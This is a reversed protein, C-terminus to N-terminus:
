MSLLLLICMCVTCFRFIGIARIIRFILRSRLRLIIINKNAMKMKFMRIFHIRIFFAHLNMKREREYSYQVFHQNLYICACVYIYKSEKWWFFLFIKTGNEKKVRSLLRRWRTTNPSSSWGRKSSKVNAVTANKAAHLYHIRYSLRPGSNLMNYRYTHCPQYRCTFFFNLFIYDMCVLPCWRKVNM